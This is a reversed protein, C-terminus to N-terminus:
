CLRMAATTKPPPWRIYFNSSVTIWEIKYAILSTFPAHAQRFCQKESFKGIIEAFRAGALSPRWFMLPDVKRSANFWCVRQFM